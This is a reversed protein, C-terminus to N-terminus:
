ESGHQERRRNFWGEMTDLHGEEDIVCQLGEPDSTPVAAVSHHGYKAAHARTKAALQEIRELDPPGPVSDCSLMGTFSDEFAELAKDLGWECADYPSDNEVELLVQFHWKAM